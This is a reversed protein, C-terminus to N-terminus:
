RWPHCLDLAVEEARGCFLVKTESVVTSTHALEDARLKLTPVSCSNLWGRFGWCRSARPEDKSRYDTVYATAIAVAGFDLDLFLPASV